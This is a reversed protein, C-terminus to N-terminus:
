DANITEKNFNIRMDYNERYFRTAADYGKVFKLHAVTRVLDNLETRESDSIKLRNVATFLDRLATDATQNM